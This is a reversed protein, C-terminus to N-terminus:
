EIKIIKGTAYKGNARIRVYYTGNTLASIDFEEQNKINLINEGWITFVSISIEIINIDSKLKVLGFTPNPFLCLEMKNSKLDLIDLPIIRNRMIIKHTGFIKKHYYIINKDATLTPAEILDIWPESFLVMPVSFIDTNSNRVAVCIEFLTTTTITGKSYRTFYLELNDSSICPAYNIYNTDNVNKLISESNLVKQFTSDNLKQAIGIETECPGVCSSDSFRANNYYLSQGDYSIGHDMVLWGPLNKNFDGHIRGINSVNGLEFTGRFLNDLEFPYDRTSTWYFNNLSDMDAVADLYPPNIQNTGNVAGGYNFISDNVKTAYFLQTNVGDNINNFFLYNGDHSIFPEMADFTLGNITVEIEHGFSPYTGSKVSFASILILVTLLIVKM